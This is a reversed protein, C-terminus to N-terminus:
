IARAIWLQERGYDPPSGNFDAFQEDGALLGQGTFLDYIEVALGGECYANPDIM